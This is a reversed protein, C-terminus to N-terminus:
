QDDTLRRPIQVTDGFVSAVIARCAAILHNEAPLARSTALAVIPEHGNTGRPGTGLTAFSIRWADILPGAQDWRRSPAWEDYDGLARDAHLIEGRSSIMIQRREAEGTAWDLARGSLTEVQVPVTSM